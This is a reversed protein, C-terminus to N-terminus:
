YEDIEGYNKRVEKGVVYEDLSLSSNKDDNHLRSLLLDALKRADKRIGRLYRSRFNILQDLGIFYLGSCKTSQMEETAPNGGDSLTILNSLYPLHAQYGTAQVILDFEASQENSFEVRNIHVRKVPPFVKVCGSSLLEAARGGDMEPRSEVCLGPQFRIRIAEWPFYIFEKIVGFWTGNRPAVPGRVSLAVSFGFDSLEVMLQGASVRKGIILIKKNEPSYFGLSQCNRFDAAHIVPISNDNEAAVSPRYPNSYYGTACVILRASFYGTDTVVHFRGDVSDCSVELVRSNAHVRLSHDRAYKKLYRLYTRAVPRRFTNYLKVSSGPLTNTWFPTVVALSDPMNEWSWGVSNRELILYDVGCRALYYGLSLGAPGAGIVIVDHSNCETFQQERL